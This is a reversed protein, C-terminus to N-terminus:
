GNRQLKRIVDKAEQYAKNYSKTPGGSQTRGNWRALTESEILTKNEQMTRMFIRFSVYVNYCDKLKYVNKGMLDNYEKLKSPTIQLIGTDKSKGLAKDDFRSEVWAIRVARIWYNSVHTKGFEKELKPRIIKLEDLSWTKANVSFTSLFILSTILLKRM